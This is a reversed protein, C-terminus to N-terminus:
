IQDDLGSTTRDNTAYDDSSNNKALTSGDQKGRLRTANASENDYTSRNFAYYDGTVDQERFDFM